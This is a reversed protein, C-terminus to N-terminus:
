LCINKFYDQQYVSGNSLIAFAQKILKNAVAILALRKSKGKAVLRDYLEKCTKNCRKASWACLYLLARTRGMGMKCIRAKGRVSTGSEVIRPSIGMYASVQKHNDFKKFCDTSVILAIATKKGIGPISQLSRFEHQYCEKIIVEMRGEISRIRKGLGTLVSRLLQKVEKDLMGSSAFAEDQCLLASRQKELQHLLAEMHRLKVIYRTPPQWKPPQETTAYAAIMRADAKDTKARLLRMQSFRKIVLPNVVSVKFGHEHLCCALKLYYPGTAEMVCHASRPLQKILSVLGKNDYDFRAGREEGNVVICVDFFQKSVDFGAFSNVKTM